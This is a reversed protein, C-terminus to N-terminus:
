ATKYITGYVYLLALLLPSLELLPMQQVGFVHLVLALLLLAIALLAYRKWRSRRVFPLIINTPLAWLINWNNRCALHDTGFWMVLMLCGLLGTTVLLLTTMIRGLLSLQRLLLGAVTLAALLITLLLVPNLLQGAAPAQEEPKLIYAGPAAVPKGEFTAGAIGDRLYDPLFMVGENSMNKDVKSGLLLNIGVREWHKDHLYKNIMQRFSVKAGEPLTPGFRFGQGLTKPFLDRVRTACNDFLFDYKYGRNQPLMNDELLAQLYLKQAATLLLEQEQVWRHEEVYTELFQEYSSKSLYYLLKGRMFKLEFNEEFGNFTGYNYVIDMGTNTDIIRVGTHGFSAYLEDGTGCTLLSIRLHSSDGQAHAAPRCALLVFSLFVLLRRFM